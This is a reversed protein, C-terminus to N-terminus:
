SDKTYTSVPPVFEGVTASVARRALSWLRTWDPDHEDFQIRGLFAADTEGSEPASAPSASVASEARRGLKCLPHKRAIATLDFISGRPIKMDIPYDTEQTARRALWAAHEEAGYTWLMPIASFLPCMEDAINGRDVATFWDALAVASEYDPTPVLDDPGRVYCCWLPQAPDFATDGESTKSASEPASAPSATNVLDYDHETGGNDWRGERTWSRKFGENSIIGFYYWPDGGQCQLESVGRGDRTTFPRSPDFPADGGGDNLPSKWGDHPRVYGWAEGLIEVDFETQLLDLTAASSWRVMVQPGFPNEGGAGFTGQCSTLTRVTPITNLYIVLDRVGVDIDAWVQVPVTPHPPLSPHFNTEGGGDSVTVPHPTPSTPDTM